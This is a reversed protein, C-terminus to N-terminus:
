REHEVGKDTPRPFVRRGHEAAWRESISIYAKEIGIDDPRIAAKQLMTAPNVAYVCLLKLPEHVDFTALLVETAESFRKHLDDRSNKGSTGAARAQFRRGRLASLIEFKQTPDSAAYADGHGDRWSLCPVLGLAESVLVQQVLGPSRLLNPVGEIAALRCAEALHQMMQRRRAVSADQSDDPSDNPIDAM